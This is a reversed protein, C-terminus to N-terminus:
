LLRSESPDIMDSTEDDTVWDELVVRQKRLIRIRPEMKLRIWWGKTVSRRLSQEFVTGLKKFHQALADGEKDDLARGRWVRNLIDGVLKENVMKGDDILEDEGPKLLRVGAFGDVSGIGEWAGIVREPHETLAYDMSEWFLPDLLSQEDETKDYLWYVGKDGDPLGQPPPPRELFRTVGTMCSLTDMHVKRVGHEQGALEHLRNLAEAGPYNLHSIALITGSVAFSAITSAFLALALVRYVFTKSRRTWIWSAGAAAVAILPPIIYIIFRWEKHPQFSYIAVYGLNPILIDLSPRRLIPISLTFPLCLILFPNFLLRPLSSTLYFHWPSVGWNKSQSDLINYTFSKLEPWLLTPSRWFLTDIPVTISLGVLAGLIGSVIISGLPLRIHPHLYLYAVHCALLVAIESRFIVGTATFLFIANQHRRRSSRSSPSRGAIPLLNRAAITALPEKTRHM